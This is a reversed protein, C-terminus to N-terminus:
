ALLGAAALSHGTRDRSSPDVVPGLLEEGRPGRWRVAGGGLRLVPLGGGPVLRAPGAAGPWGVLAVVGGLLLVATRQTFFPLGRLGAEWDPLLGGARGASRTCSGVGRDTFSIEVRGPLGCVMRWLSNSLRLSSSPPSLLGCMSSRAAVSRSKPTSKWGSSAPTSSPPPAKSSGSTKVSAKETALM